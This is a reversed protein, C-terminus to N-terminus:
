SPVDKGFYPFKFTRSVGDGHTTSQIRSGSSITRPRAGTSPMELIVRFAGSHKHPVYRVSPSPKHVEDPFYLRPLESVQRLVDALDKDFTAEETAPDLKSGTVNRIVNALVAGCFYINCLHFPLDRNFSFATNSGPHVAPDPGITGDALVGEIYYGLCYIGQGQFFMTSLRRQKHKVLNDIVAVHDRYSRIESNLSRLVKQAAKSESDDFFCCVIGKYSDLHQMLADLVHDLADVLAQDSKPELSGTNVLEQNARGLCDLLGKLKSVVEGFSVNFIALPPRLNRRQHYSGTGGLSKLAQAAM